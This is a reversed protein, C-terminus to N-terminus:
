KGASVLEAYTAYRGQEEDALFGELSQVLQTSLYGPVSSPHPYNFVSRIIVSHSDHPLHRANDAFRPLKGQRMLYFEVNSTYFASVREHRRALLEGIGRLAHDGALDGVVPIVRDSTELGRVFRYDEERALYSARAGSLDRELLLQRYSPYGARPPRNFSTFRLDLGGDFFSRRIRAVTALDEASLPVGFRRLQAEIAPAARAFVEESAPTSDLHAVLDEVGLRAFSRAAAPAPRGFLLCLYEIRSEGLEFLAKFYLQQLLNDRRLDVIFAIAPRVHAIYSFNQDPGVGLYAGGSVGMAELKGVAHLYSAENSILNDTDFYGSPESLAAILGAFSSDARSPASTAELSREPREASGELRQCGPATAIGLLVLV